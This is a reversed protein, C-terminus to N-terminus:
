SSCELLFKSFWAFPFPCACALHNISNALLVCSQIQSPLTKDNPNQDPIFALFHSFFFFAFSYVFFDNLFPFFHVHTQVQERGIGRLTQSM